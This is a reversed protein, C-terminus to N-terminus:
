IQHRVLIKTRGFGFFGSSTGLPYQRMERRQTGYLNKSRRDCGWRIVTMSVCSKLSCVPTSRSLYINYGTVRRMWSMSSLKWASSFASTIRRLWEVAERCPRAAHDGGCSEVSSVDLFHEAVFSWVWCWHRGICVSLNLFPTGWPESSTGTRNLMYMLSRGAVCVLFYPHASSRALGADSSISRVSQTPSVVSMDIGDLYRFIFQQRLTLLVLVMDKSNWKWLLCAVWLSFM